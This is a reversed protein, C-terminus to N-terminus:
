HSLWVERGGPEIIPYKNILADSLLDSVVADIVRLSRLASSRPYNDFLDKLRRVIEKTEKEAPDEM